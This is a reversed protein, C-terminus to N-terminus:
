AHAAGRRDTEGGSAHESRLIGSALDAVRDAAGPEGLRRRIGALGELMRTRTESDELLPQVADRLGPGNVDGQLLEPVVREDAVLNALAIHGVRVVRKALAFTIPHTRYACVFPMAALAAQLTSTGSKVIGARAHQLLHDSDPVLVMGDPLSLKPLSPAQAVAVQVDPRGEQVLRAADLFPALLRGIEQKRSGPFLALIPRDRELGHNRCFEERSIENPPRDLLPHGVFEAHGGEREFISQEFPLIVAITRADRALRAARGPKWAWVQPAIYYLVPVGAERAFRAIRMNFGPYDIALVLAVDGSAIKAKVRRELKRFFGLRSVVEVFGMVALEDLGAICDVGVDAMRQGGLGWFALGPHRSKLARVVEAGHLDGSEEGALVVVSGEL